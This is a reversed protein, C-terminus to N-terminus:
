SSGHHWVEHHPNWDGFGTTTTLLCSDIDFSVLLHDDGPLPVGLTARESVFQAGLTQRLAGSEVIEVRGSVSFADENDETPFSHVSYRGDRRLDRQKPSPLIFGYMGDDTLLPCFPHLRPGGDPRVTALFALGVGHQYLLRRGGQALDPRQSSLEGWSTM